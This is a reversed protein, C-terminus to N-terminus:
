QSMMVFGSTAKAAKDMKQFHFVVASCNSCCVPDWSATFSIM